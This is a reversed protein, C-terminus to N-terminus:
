LNILEEHATIQLTASCMALDPRVPDSGWSGSTNVVVYRIKTSQEKAAQKLIGIATRLTKSAEAQTEARSDITVSFTDITNSDWGGVARVLINPLKYEAPLPPCYVSLYPALAKRAEDEIDISRLINM